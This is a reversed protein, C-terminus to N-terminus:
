MVHPYPMFVFKQTFVISFHKILAFMSLTTTMPCLLLYSEFYFCELDIQNNLSTNLHGPCVCCRKHYFLFEIHLPHSPLLHCNATKVKQSWRLLMRTDTIVIKHDVSIDMKLRARKLMNYMSTNIM